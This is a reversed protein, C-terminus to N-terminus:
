HDDAINFDTEDSIIHDIASHQRKDFVLGYETASYIHIVKAPIICAYDGALTLNLTVKTNISITHEIAIRIGKSSINLVNVPIPKSVKFWHKLTLTAKIDSKKYRVAKRSSATTSESIPTFIDDLM